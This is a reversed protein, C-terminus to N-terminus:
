LYGRSRESGACSVGGPASCAPLRRASTSLWARPQRWGRGQRRSGTLRGACRSRSRHWSANTRELGEGRPLAPCSGRGAAGGSEDAPSRPASAVCLILLARRPLHSEGSCLAARGLCFWARLVSQKDPFSTM